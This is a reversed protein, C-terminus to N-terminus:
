ILINLKNKRIKPVIENNWWEEWQGQQLENLIKKVLEMDTFYCEAVLELNKHCITEYDDETYDEDDYVKRLDMMFVDDINIGKSKLFNEWTDDSIIDDFYDNFDEEYDCEWQEIIELLNEKTM